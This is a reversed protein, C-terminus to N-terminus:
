ECKLKDVIEDNLWTKFKRDVNTIEVFMQSDQSSLVKMPLCSVKTLETSYFGGEIDDDQELSKLRYMPIPLSKNVGTVIFLETKQAHSYSRQFTAKLKAVRVVDNLFLDQKKQNKTGRKFYFNSLKERVFLENEIKEAEIPTTGITRHVSNNYSDVLSPLDDVFRQSSTQTMLKYMKNQITKNVREVGACKMDSMTFRQKINVSELYNRVEGNKFETGRDSLIERPPPPSFFAIMEKLVVLVDRSKKSKLTGCFLLKSFMDIGTLLYKVNDNYQSIKITEILDIQIQQRKKYIFFPNRGRPKKQERHMSYSNIGQLASKVGKLGVKRGYYAKTKSVGSFSHPHSPIVYSNRITKVIGMM